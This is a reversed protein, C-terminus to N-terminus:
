RRANRAREVLSRIFDTKGDTYAPRDNRYRESLELKLKGYERAANPHDRLYDRFLLHREWDDTGILFMHAHVVRLGDRHMEFYLRGPIGHEGKCVYGLSEMPGITAPGDERRAIGPMMDLIPKAILGPVATSGIHEITAVLGGCARVIREAEGRFLTAWEPRHSVLEVLRANAGLTAWPDGPPTQKVGVLGRPWTDDPM